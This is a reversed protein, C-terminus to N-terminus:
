KSSGAFKTFDFHKDIDRINNGCSQLEALDEESIDAALIGLWFCDHVNTMHYKEVMEDNDTAGPDLFRIVVRM